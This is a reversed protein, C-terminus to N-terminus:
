HFLVDFLSPRKPKTPNPRPGHPQQSQNVQQPRTEGRLISVIRGMEGNVRGGEYAWSKDHNGKHKIPDFQDIHLDIEMGNKSISVYAHFRPFPPDNLLRHFCARGADTCHRVYGACKMLNDPTDSLPHSLVWKM